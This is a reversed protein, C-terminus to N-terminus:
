VHRGMHQMLCYCVGLSSICILGHHHFKLLLSWVSSKPSLLLLIRTPGTRKLLKLTLSMQWELM